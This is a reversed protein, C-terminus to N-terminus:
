RRRSPGIGRHFATQIPAALHLDGLAQGSRFLDDVPADFQREAERHVRRPLEVHDGPPRHRDRGELGPLRSPLGPPLRMAIEHARGIPSARSGPDRNADHRTSNPRARTDASISCAPYRPAM